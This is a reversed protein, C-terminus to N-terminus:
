GRARQRGPRASDRTRESFQSELLAVYANYERLGAAPDGAGPSRPLRAAALTDTM